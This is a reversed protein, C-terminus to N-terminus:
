RQGGFFDIHQELARIGATAFWGRDVRLQGLLTGAVASATPWDRRARGHEGRCGVTRAVVAEANSATAYTQHPARSPAAQNPRLAAARAHRGSRQSSPKRRHYRRPRSRIASARVAQECPSRSSQRPRATARKAAPFPPRSERNHTHSAARRSGATRTHPRADSRKCDPSRDRYTPQVRVVHGAPDCHVASRLWGSPDM